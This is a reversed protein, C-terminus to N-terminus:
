GEETTTPELAEDKAKIQARLAALEADRAYSDLELDIKRNAEALQARLKDIESRLAQREEILDFGKQVLRETKDALRETEGMPAAATLRQRVPELIDFIQESFARQQPNAFMVALAAVVESDIGNRFAATVAQETITMPPSM